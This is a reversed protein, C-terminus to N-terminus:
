KKRIRTIDNKGTILRIISDMIVNEKRTNNSLVSRSSRDRICGSCNADYHGDICSSKHQGNPTAESLSDQKSWASNSWGSNSSGSDGWGSNGWSKSNNQGWNM